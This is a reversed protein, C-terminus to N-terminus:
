RIVTGHFLNGRHPKKMSAPTMAAVREEAMAEKIPAGRMRCDRAASRMNETRVGKAATLPRGVVGPPADQQSRSDGKDGDGQPLEIQNGPHHGHEKKDGVAQEVIGRKKFGSCFTRRKAGAEFPKRRFEAQDPKEDTQTGHQGDVGFASGGGDTQQKGYVM